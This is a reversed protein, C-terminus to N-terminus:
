VHARGIKQFDTLHLDSKIPVALMTIIYTDLCSLVYILYLVALMGWSQLGARRSAPARSWSTDSSLKAQSVVESM